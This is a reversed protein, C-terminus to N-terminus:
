GRSRGMLEGWSGRLTPANQSEQINQLFIARPISEAGLSQLHQTPVQCDVLDFNREELDKVLTIFGTKSANSVKAFMSEGFFSRGLSVGYLGGVLKGEQWVEASHAFGLKHLEIYAELMEKTIWTGSQGPRYTQQCERIVAAFDQDYTVEFIGKRLVQKMSKSVKLKQPFLVFRPDPCWWLIPDHESFWPFIGKEYALLLRKATLDGGVGLLGDPEAQNPHPFVLEKPIRYIPMFLQLCM